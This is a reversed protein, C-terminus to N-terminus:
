TESTINHVRGHFEGRKNMLRGLKTPHDRLVSPTFGTFQKLEKTMHSDDFYATTLYDMEDAEEGTLVRAVRLARYKRALQKPAVGYYQKCLRIIHRSSQPWRAYLDSLEPAVSSGLWENVVHTFDLIKQSVNAFKDVFFDDCIKVLTGFDDVGQIEASLAGLTDGFNDLMVVQDVYDCAHSRTIWGWAAPLIGMGFLTMPRDVDCRTFNHTPGIIYHDSLHHGENNGIAIKGDGLLMFRLQAVGAREIDVFGGSPCHFHYYISIFNRLREDPAAYHLQPM